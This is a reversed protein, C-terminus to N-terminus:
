YSRTYEVRRTNIAELYAKLQEKLVKGENEVKVQAQAKRERGKDGCKLLFTSAIKICEACM